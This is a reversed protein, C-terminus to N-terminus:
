RCPQHWVATPGQQWNPVKPEKVLQVRYAEFDDCAHPAPPLVGKRMGFVGGPENPEQLPRAPLACPDAPLAAPASQQRCGTEQPALAEVEVVGSAHVSGVAALEYM